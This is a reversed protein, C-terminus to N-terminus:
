CVEKATPELPLGLDRHRAFICTTRISHRDSDADTSIEAHDDQTIQKALRYINRYHRNVLDTFANADRERARAVFSSEEDSFFPRECTFMM